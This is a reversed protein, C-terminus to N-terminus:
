SHIVGEIESIWYPLLAKETPKKRISEYLDDLESDQLELFADYSPVALIPLNEALSTALSGELIVPVAGSYIAEWTRHCDVGRGPPYIVFKSKALIGRHERATFRKESWGFRSKGLAEAAKLRPGRNNEVAFSGFLLLTRESEPYLAEFGMSFDQLRGNRNRFLNELGLPLATLGPAEEVVNVSYVAHSSSLVSGLIEDSPLVDGNHLIVVPPVEQMEVLRFFTGLPGQGFGELIAREIESLDLFILSRVSRRYPSVTMEKEIVYDSMARFGDGSVLPFSSPKARSLEEIASKEARAKASRWVQEVLFDRLTAQLSPAM